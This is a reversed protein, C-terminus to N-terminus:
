CAITEERAYKIANAAEVITEIAFDIEADTTFRGVSLRLAGEVLHEPLAMARLVHSPEQAGSACAAGTSIAIKHGTRALVADNPVGPISIHLSHSLRNDIDGNVVLDPLAASLGAQLRDRLRSTLLREQEFDAVAFRAAAGIGVIAAVAPTGAHDFLAAVDPGLERIMLAGIGKPGYFKHGSVILFDCTAAVPHLDLRGAAQTADVLTRVGARLCLGITAEVPYITGVENNAMMLCMLDIGEAIASKVMDIAIQGKQDVPLWVIDIRGNAQLDALSSLMAPHEVATAAVRLRRGYEGALAIALGKRIADSASGTFRVQDRECGILDAVDARAAEVAAAAARGAGHEVSNPNGIHRRMADVMVEIVRPDIPTTAHHDLYVPSPLDSTTM